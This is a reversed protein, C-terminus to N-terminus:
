CLFELNKDANQATVTSTTLRNKTEKKVLVRTEAEGTKVWLLMWKTSETRNKTVLFTVPPGGISLPSVTINCIRFWIKPQPTDTGEVDSYLQSHVWNKWDESVVAMGFATSTLLIALDVEWDTNPTLGTVTFVWELWLKLKRLEERIAEPLERRNDLM